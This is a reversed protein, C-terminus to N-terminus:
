WPNGNPQCARHCARHRRSKKSLLVYTASRDNCNRQILLVFDLHSGSLWVPPVMFQVPVVRSWEWDVIGAPNYDKDFLLPSIVNEMSLLFFFPFRNVIYIAIEIFLEM